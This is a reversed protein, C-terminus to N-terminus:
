HCDASGSDSFDVPQGAAQIFEFDYAGDRLAMELIGYTQTNAAAVEEPWESEDPLPQYSDGGTGVVFQVMGNPDANGEPDIPGWRQYDHQHGTLLVDANEGRLLEYLPAQVNNGPLKYKTLKFMPHHFYAVTCPFEENPHRALDRQLWQYQPDGPECGGGPIPSTWRTKLNWMKNICLQTNLAIFHWGGLNYSYYGTVRRPKDGPRYTQYGAPFHTRKTGFYRVYGSFDNYAEHNGAAPRTIDKVSGYFKDWFTVYRWYGGYSYQLDGLPLFADYGGETVLRAVRGPECKGHVKAAGAVHRETRAGFACVLDGVAAIRTGEGEQAGAQPFLTSTLTIAVFLSGFLIGFRLAKRDMM